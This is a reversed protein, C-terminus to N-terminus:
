PSHLLEELKAKIGKATEELAVSCEVISTTSNVFQIVVRGTCDLNVVVAFRAPVLEGAAVDSTDSGLGNLSLRQEELLLDTVDRNVVM